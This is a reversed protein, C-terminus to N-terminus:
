RFFDILTFKKKKKITKKKKTKTKPRFKRARIFKELEKEVNTIRFLKEDKKFAPTHSHTKNGKIEFRHKKHLLEHYLVYELLDQDERLATSLSIADNSFEYHGLKNLSYNGWYIKPMSMVDNFYESNLKEFVDRLEKPTDNKDHYNYDAIKKMFSNYLDIYMSENKTKFMKNLLHQIIGLQIEESLEEFKKSLNFTIKSVNMSITANYGKFRASYKVEIKKRLKKEPYLEKFAQKGLNM